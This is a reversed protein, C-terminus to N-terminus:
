THERLRKLLSVYEYQSCLSISRILLTCTDTIALHLTNCRGDQFSGLCSTFKQVEQKIQKFGDVVLSCIGVVQEVLVLGDLQVFALLFFFLTSPCQGQLLHVCKTSQQPIQSVGKSGAWTEVSRLALHHCVSYLLCVQHDRNVLKSFM